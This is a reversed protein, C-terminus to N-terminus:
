CIKVTQRGRDEQIITMITRGEAGLIKTPKFGLSRNSTYEFIYPAVYRLLEALVQYSRIARYPESPPGERQLNFAQM